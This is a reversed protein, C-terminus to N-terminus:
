KQWEQTGTIAISKESTGINCIQAGVGSIENEAVVNETKVMCTVKYPTKKESKSKPFYQMM